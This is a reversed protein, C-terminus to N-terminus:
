PRPTGTPMPVRRPVKDLLLAEVESVRMGALRSWPIRQMEQLVAARLSPEGREVLLKLFRQLAAVQERNLPMDQGQVWARLVPRWVRLVEGFARRVEADQQMLRLLAPSYRYYMEVYRKGAPTQALRSRAQYFLGLDQLGPVQGQMRQLVCPGPTPTPTPTPTPPITGAYRILLRAAYESGPYWVPREYGIVRRHQGSASSVTNFIFGMGHYPQWDPRSVIEQVLAALDPTRRTMGLKWHDTAPVTWLVSAQTRPRNEPRDTDSFPQADGSAEGYIRVQLPVDYPGDVTFELYAEVIQANRPVPVNGFRFGSTILSGDTCEGFYIENWSTAYACVSPEPGADEPGSAIQIQVETVGVVVQVPDSPESENGGQDVATVVFYYIGPEGSPIELSTATLGQAIRHADDVPVDETRAQYVNYRIGEERVPEWQLMIPYDGNVTTASLNLPTIPPNDKVHIEYYFFNFVGAPLEQYGWGGYGGAGSTFLLTVQESATPNDERRTPSAGFDPIVFQAERNDWTFLVRQVADTRLAHTPADFILQDVACYPCNTLFTIELTAGTQDEGPPLNLQDSFIEALFAGPDEIPSRKVRLTTEDPFAPRHVRYANQNNIRDLVAVLDRDSSWTGWDGGPQGVLAPYETKLYDALIFDAFLSQWLEPYDDYPSTGQEPHLLVETVADVTDKQLPPIDERLQEWIRKVIPQQYRDGYFNNLYWLFLATGYERDTDGRLADFVFLSWEPHLHYDEISVFLINEYNYLAKEIWTSSGEMLWAGRTAPSAYFFLPGWYPCQAERFGLYDVQIVHFLEHAALAQKYQESKNLADLAFQIRIPMSIAPPSEGFPWIGCPNVERVIEVEIRDYPFLVRDALIIYYETPNPLTYGLNAFRHWAAELDNALDQAYAQGNPIEQPDWRIRFHDTEMTEMSLLRAQLAQNSRQLEQEIFTKTDEGWQDQDRFLAWTKAAAEPWGCRARPRPYAQPPKLPRYPLPLAFPDRLAQLRLRVAQDLTIQGGEYAQDIREIAEQWAPLPTENQGPPRSRSSASGPSGQILLVALLLLGAGIQIWRKM